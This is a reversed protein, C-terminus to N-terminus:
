SKKLVLWVNVFGAFTMEIASNQSYYERLAELSPEDVERDQLLRLCYHKAVVVALTHVVM